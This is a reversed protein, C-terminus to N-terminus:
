GKPWKIRKQRNKQRRQFLGFYNKPCKPEKKPKYWFKREKEREKNDRALRVNDEVQDKIRILM